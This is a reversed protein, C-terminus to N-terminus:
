VEKREKKKLLKDKFKPHDVILESFVAFPLAVLFVILITRGTLRADTSLTIALLDEGLGFILGVIFFELFRVVKKNKM